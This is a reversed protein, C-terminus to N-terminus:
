RRDTRRRGFVERGKDDLIRLGITRLPWHVESALRVAVSADAAWIENEDLIRPGSGGAGGFFQLRFQQPKAALIRQLEALQESEEVSPLWAPSRLKTTHNLRAGIRRTAQTLAALRRDQLDSRKELGPV